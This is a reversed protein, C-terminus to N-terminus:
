LGRFGSTPHKVPNRLSRWIGIWLQKWFPHDDLNTISLIRLEETLICHVLHWPTCCVQQICHVFYGSSTPCCEVASAWWAAQNLHSGELQDGTSEIQRNRKANWTGKFRNVLVQLSDEPIKLFGSKPIKVWSGSSFKLNHVIFKEYKSRVRLLCNKIFVQSVSKSRLQSAWNLLEISVSM